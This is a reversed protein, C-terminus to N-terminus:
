RHNSNEGHVGTVTVNPWVTSNCGLITGPVMEFTRSRTSRVDALNAAARVAAQSEVRSLDARVAVAGVHQGPEPNHHALITDRMIAGGIKPQREEEFLEM